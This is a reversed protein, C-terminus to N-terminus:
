GVRRRVAENIHARLKSELQMEDSFSDVIIRGIRANLPSLNQKLNNTQETLFALCDLHSQHKDHVMVVLTTWEGVQLDQKGKFAIGNGLLTALIDGLIVKPKATTEEIEILTYIKSDDRSVIAIDLDGLITKLTPTSGFYSRLKGLKDPSDKGILKHDHLVDLGQRSPERQLFDAIRATEEGNSM